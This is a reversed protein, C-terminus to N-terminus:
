EFLSFLYGTVLTLDIVSHKRVSVRQDHGEPVAQGTHERPEDDEGVQAVQGGVHAERDVLDGLASRGQGENHIREGDSLHGNGRQPSNKEENHQDCKTHVALNSLM